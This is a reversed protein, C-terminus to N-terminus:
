STDETTDTPETAQKGADGATVGDARLADYEALTQEINRGSRVGHRKRIRPVDAVTPLERTPAPRDSGPLRLATAGSAQEDAQHRVTASVVTVLEGDEAETEWQLPEIMYGIPEFEPGYKSKRCTMTATKPEGPSTDDPTIGIVFDAANFLRQAGIMKKGDATNHHVVMVVCDLERVLMKLGLVLRNASSDNSISLGGSFDSLADIVVMELDPIIRLQAIAHSLSDTPEGHASVPITFPTDMIFLRESTYPPAPNEETATEADDRAQRSLRGQLRVGADYLGEGLAVAVCGTVTAAGFFPAGNCIALALENDAVLSKGSYSPGHMIGYGVRPIIGDVTWEPPSTDLMDANMLSPM